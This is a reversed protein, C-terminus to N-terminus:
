AVLCAGFSDMSFDSAAVDATTCTMSYQITIGCSKVVFGVVGLELM